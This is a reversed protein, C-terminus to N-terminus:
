VAFLIPQKNVLHLGTWRITTSLAHSKRLYASVGTIRWHFNGKGTAQWLMFCLFRGHAGAGRCSQTMVPRQGFDFCEENLWEIVQQELRLRHVARM